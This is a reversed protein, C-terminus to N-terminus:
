KEFRALTKEPIEIQDIDFNNIQLTLEGDRKEAEEGVWCSYLEFFDGKDLYSDKQINMMM